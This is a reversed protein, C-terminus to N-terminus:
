LPIADQQNSPTAARRSAHRWRSRRDPQSAPEVRRQPLAFRWLDHAHLHQAIMVLFMVKAMM